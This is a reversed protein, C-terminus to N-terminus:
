VSIWMPPLTVEEQLRRIRVLEKEYFFELPAEIMPQYHYGPEDNMFAIYCARFVDPHGSLTMAVATLVEQDKESLNCRSLARAFLIMQEEKM